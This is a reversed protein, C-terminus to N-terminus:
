WLPGPTKNIAVVVVMMMIMEAMMTMDIQGRGQPPSHLVSPPHWSAQSPEVDGFWSQETLITMIMIMIMTIMMM